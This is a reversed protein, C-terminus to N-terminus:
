NKNAKQMKSSKCKTFENVYGSESSWVLNFDLSDFYVMICLISSVWECVVVCETYRASDINRLTALVCVFPYNRNVSKIIVRRATAVM